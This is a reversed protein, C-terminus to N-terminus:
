VREMNSRIGGDWVDGLIRCNTVRINIFRDYADETYEEGLHDLVTPYLMDENPLERGYETDMAWGDNYWVVVGEHAGDESIIYDGAYMKAGATDDICTYQGRTEPFVELMETVLEWGNTSPDILRPTIKVIYVQKEENTYIGGYEWLGTLKHKGRFILEKM